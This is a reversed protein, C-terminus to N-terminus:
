DFYGGTIFAVIVLVAGLLVAVSDWVLGSKTPPTLTKLWAQRPKTHYDIM